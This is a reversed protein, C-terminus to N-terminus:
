RKLAYELLCLRAEDLKGRVRDLIEEQSLGHPLLGDCFGILMACTTAMQEAQTNPPVTTAAAAVASKGSVGRGKNIYHRVDDDDTEDRSDHLKPM